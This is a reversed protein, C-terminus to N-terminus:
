VNEKAKKFSQRVFEVKSMKNKKIFECLDNYEEIPLGVAFLKYHEKLYEADYRRKNAIATESLRDKEAM